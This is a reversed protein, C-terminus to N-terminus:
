KNLSDARYLIEQLARGAPRAHEPKAVRWWSTGGHVAKGAKFGGAHQGDLVHCPRALKVVLAQAQLGDAALRVAFEDVAAAAGLDRQEGFWLPRLRLVGG